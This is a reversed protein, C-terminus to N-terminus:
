YFVYVYSAPLLLKHIKNVSKRNYININKLNHIYGWYERLCILLGLTVVLSGMGDFSRLHDTSFGGGMGTGFNTMSNAAEINALGLQGLFPVGSVPHDIFVLLFWLLFWMYTLM